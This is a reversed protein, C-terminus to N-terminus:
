KADSGIAKLKPKALALKVLGDDIEIKARDAVEKLDRRQKIERAIEARTLKPKENKLSRIAPYIMDRAQRGPTKSKAGKPRGVPKETAAHITITPSRTAAIFAHIMHSLSYVAKRATGLQKATKGSAGATARSSEIRVHEGAEKVDLGQFMKMMQRIEPALKLDLIEGLRYKLNDQTPKDRDPHPPRGELDCIAAEYELRFGGQDSELWDILTQRSVHKYLIDRVNFWISKGIDEVARHWTSRCLNGLRVPAVAVRELQTEIPTITAESSELAECLGDFCISIYM